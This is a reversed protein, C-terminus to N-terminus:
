RAAKRTRKKLRNIRRRFVQAQKKDLDDINKERVKKLKVIKKKLERVATDVKKTTDEVIGRAEKIASLLESKNMGHVGIIEPITLALERLEKSTMKEIPKAKAEKKKKAGM